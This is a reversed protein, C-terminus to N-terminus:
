PTSASRNATQFSRRQVSVSKEDLRDDDIAAEGSVVTLSRVDSATRPAVTAWTCGNLAPARSVSRIGLTQAMATPTVAALRTKVLSRLSLHKSESHPLRLHRAMDPWLLVQASTSDAPSLERTLSSAHGRYAAMRWARARRAARYLDSGEGRSSRTSSARPRRARALGACQDTRM